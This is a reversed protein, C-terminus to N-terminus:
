NVWKAIRDKIKIPIVDVNTEIARGPFDRSAWLLGISPVRAGRGCALNWFSEALLAAERKASM